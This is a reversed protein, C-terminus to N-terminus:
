KVATKTVHGKAHRAPDKVPCNCHAAGGRGAPPTPLGSRNQGRQQLLQFLYEPRHQRRDRRDAGVLGKVRSTM